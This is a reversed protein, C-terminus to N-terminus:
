KHLQADDTLVITVDVDAPLSGSDLVLRAAHELLSSDSFEQRTEIYIMIRTERYARDFGPRTSPTQINFARTIPGAANTVFSDTISNLIRLTLMTNDLQNFKQVYRHRKRVLARLDDDTEPGEGRAVHKAPTPLM